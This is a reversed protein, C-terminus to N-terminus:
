RSAIRKGETLRTSRPGSLRPLSWSAAAEPAWVAEQAARNAGFPPWHRVLSVSLVYVPRCARDVSLIFFRCARDVSLLALLSQTAIRRGAPGAGAAGTRDSDHKSMMGSAAGVRFAWGFEIRGRRIRKKEKTTAVERSAVSREGWAISHLAQSSEALDHSSVYRRGPAIGWAVNFAPRRGAYRQTTAPQLIENAIGRVGGSLEDARHRHISGM